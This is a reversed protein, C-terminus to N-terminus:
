YLQVDCFETLSINTLNYWTNIHSEVILKTANVLADTCEEM